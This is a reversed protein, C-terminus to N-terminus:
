TTFRVQMVGQPGKRRLSQNDPKVKTLFESIDGGANQYAMMRRIKDDMPDLMVVTQGNEPTFPHPILKMDANKIKQTIAEYEFEIEAGDLVQELTQKKMVRRYKQGTIPCKKCAKIDTPGNYAWPPADAIYTGAITNDANMLLFIFGGVEGDGLDFPPSSSIYTQQAYFTDTSVGATKVIYLAVRTAYSTTTVGTNEAPYMYGSSNNSGGSMIKRTQPWFGYSGGPLTTFGSTTGISATSVSVSGTLVNLDGQSVSTLGGTDYNLIQFQTGDYEVTYLGNQIIEGSAMPVLTGSGTDRKYINKAGLGNVNFTCAGTITNQAKFTFRQGAVYATPAPSYTATITNTGTAGIYAFVNNQYDIWTTHEIGGATSGDHVSLRWNSTDIDLERSALTRAQQTANAEGRIQVQTIGTM